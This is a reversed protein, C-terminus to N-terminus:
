KIAELVWEYEIDNLNGFLNEKFKLNYSLLNGQFNFNNPEIACWLKVLNKDNTCLYTQTKHDLAIAWMLYDLARFDSLTNYADKMTYNEPPKPKFIKKAPNQKSSSLAASLTAIFLIENSRIKHAIALNKIKTIVTSRQKRSTEKYLIPIVSKIFSLKKSNNSYM